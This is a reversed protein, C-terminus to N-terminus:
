CRSSDCLILCSCFYFEHMELNNSIFSLKGKSPKCEEFIAVLDDISWDDCIRGNEDMKWEQGKLVLLQNDSPIRTTQAILSKLNKFTTEPDVSINFEVPRETENGHLLLKMSLSVTKGIDISQSEAIESRAKKQGANSFGKEENEKDKKARPKRKKEKSSLDQPPLSERNQRSSGNATKKKKGVKSSRAKQQWDGLVAKEEAEPDFSESDSEMTELDALVNKLSFESVTPRPKKATPQEALSECDYYDSLKHPKKRSRESQNSIEAKERSKKLRDIFEGCEKKTGKKLSTAKFYEETLEGNEDVVKWLVRTSGNEEKVKSEPVVHPGRSKADELPFEVAYFVAMIRALLCM